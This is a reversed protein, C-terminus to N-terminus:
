PRAEESDMGRQEQQLYRSAAVTATFGIIAIVILIVLYTTDDRRAADVAIAGMASILAVDIAMIREALGPGIVLRVIGCAAAFAFGCIAFIM